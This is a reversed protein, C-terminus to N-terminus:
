MIDENEHLEHMFPTIENYDKIESLTTSTM